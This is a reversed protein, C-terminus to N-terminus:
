GRDPRDSRLRALAWLAAAAGAGELAWAGWLSGSPAGDMALSLFRALTMGGLVAGAALVGLRAREPAGACYALFLALGIEAGGYLARVDNKASASRMEIGISELLDPRLLFSLGAAGFLLAALVLLLRAFPIPAM